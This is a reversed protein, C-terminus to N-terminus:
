QGAPRAEGDREGLPARHVGETAIFVPLEAVAVAGGLERRPQHFCQGVHSDGGDARPPRM